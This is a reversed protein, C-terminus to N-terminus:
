WWPGYGLGLFPFFPAPAYYHPRDYYTPYPRYYPRYAYYQHHRIRRRASFDNAQPKQLSKQVTAPIPAAVAPSIAAFGGFMLTAALVAAGSWKTMLAEGSNIAARCISRQLSRPSHSAFSRAASIFAFRAFRNGDWVIIIKRSM